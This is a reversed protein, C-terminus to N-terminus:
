ALVLAEPLCAVVRSDDREAQSLGVGGRPAELGEGLLVRLSRLNAKLPAANGVTLLRVLAGGIVIPRRDVEGAAVVELGLDVEPEAL